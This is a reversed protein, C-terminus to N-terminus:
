LADAKAQYGAAVKNWYKRHKKETKCAAIMRAQEAWYMWHGKGKPMLKVKRTTGRWVEKNVDNFFRDGKATKAKEQDEARIALIQAESLKLTLQAKHSVTNM